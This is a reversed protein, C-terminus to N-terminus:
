TTPEMRLQFHGTEPDFAAVRWRGRRKSPLWPDAENVQGAAGKQGPKGGILVVDVLGGDRNVAQALHQERKRAGPKSRWDEIPGVIGALTDLVMEGCNLESIWVTLCVGSDSAASWDQRENERRYGLRRYADKLNMPTVM